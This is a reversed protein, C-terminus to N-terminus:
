YSCDFVTVGFLCMRFVVKFLGHLLFVISFLFVSSLDHLILVSSVTASSLGYSIYVNSFHFVIRVNAFVILPCGSSVLVNSYITSSPCVFYACQLVFSVGSWVFYCM